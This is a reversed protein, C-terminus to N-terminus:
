REVSLALRRMGAAAAGALLLALLLLGAGGLAPISAANNGLPTPALAFSAEITHDGTVNALTYHGGSVASTVEAGDLLVADIKYGSDPTITYTASEGYNVSAPGAINGNADATATVTFVIISFSVAIAHDATVNNLTLTNGALLGTADAGDLTLTAIQYGTDPTIAYTQDSGVAVGATGAPAIGGHASASAAVLALAAAGASASSGGSGIAAGGQGPTAGGGPGGGTAGVAGTTHISIAGVSGASGTGGGSGIGAGGGYSAAGGGGGGTATVEASGAISIDGSAGNTAANSAGGGIGASAFGGTAHVTGGDITIAGGSSGYSGGGIGAAWAGGTADVAGGHIAITGGSGGSSGGGGGIGAGGGYTNVGSATVTGGDITISGGDGNRGGGIGAGSDGGTATVTGGHITITGGSQNFGGGIGAGWDGGNATLSGMSPGTSQAYVTLSNAGSVNIGADNADGTVSLTYGDALILNVSGSITITANCTVASSVVYWGDALAGGCDASTIETVGDQHQLNGAADLYAVNDAARAPLAALALLALAALVQAFFRPLFHRSFFTGPLFDLSRGSVDSPPSTHTSEQKASQSCPLSRPTTFYRRLLPRCAM